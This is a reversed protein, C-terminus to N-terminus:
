KHNYATLQKQNRRYRLENINEIAVDGLLYGLETATAAVAWLVGGLEQMLDRELKSITICTPDRMFKQLKNALEGAEANLLMVTYILGAVPNTPTSKPYVALDAAYRQYAQLTIDSTIPLRETLESM